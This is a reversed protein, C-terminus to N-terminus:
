RRSWGSEKLNRLARVARLGPRRSAGAESPRTLPKLLDRRSIEALVKRPCGERPGSESLAAAKAAGRRKRPAQPNRRAQAVGEEVVPFRLTDVGIELFKGATPVGRLVQARALSEAAERSSVERLRRARTGKGEGCTGHTTHRWRTKARLFKMQRRPDGPQRRVEPMVLEERAKPESTPEAERLLGPDAPKRILGGQDMPSEPALQPLPTSVIVSDPHWRGDSSRPSKKTAKRRQM